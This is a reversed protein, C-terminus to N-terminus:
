AKPLLAAAIAKVATVARGAPDGAPDYATVSAALVPITTRLACIFEALGAISLGGAPQYANAPVERPNLCDLDLHLYVGRMEAPWAVPAVAALMRMGCAAMREREGVDFSRGGLHTVREPPVPAFGPVGTAMRRWCQGTVTALATGDLFGSTTTEPTHFDGHADCWVVGAGAGLGGLVGISAPLCNGSFVLPWRQQALAARIREALRAALAFATGAETPFCDGTEILEVECGLPM